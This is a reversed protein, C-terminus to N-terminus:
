HQCSQANLSRTLSCGDDTQLILIIVRLPLALISVIPIIYPRAVSIIGFGIAQGGQLGIGVTAIRFRLPQLVQAIGVIRHAIDGLYAVIRLLRVIEAIGHDLRLHAVLVISNVLEDLGAPAFVGALGIVDNAAISIKRKHWLQWM